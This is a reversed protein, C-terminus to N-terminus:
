SFTQHRNNKCGAARVVAQNLTDNSGQGWMVFDNLKVVRPNDLLSHLKPFSSIANHVTSFLCGDLLSCLESIVTGDELLIQRGQTIAYAYVAPFFVLQNGIGSGDNGFIIFRQRSKNCRTNLKSPDCAYTIDCSDAMKVVNTKEKKASLPIHHLCLLIILVLVFRSLM